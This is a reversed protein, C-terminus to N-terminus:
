SGFYKCLHSKFLFCQSEPILCSSSQTHSWCLQCLLHKVFFKVMSLLPGLCMLALARERLDNHRGEFQRLGHQQSPWRFDAARNGPATCSGATFPLSGRAAPLAKSLYTCSQLLFGGQFLVRGCVDGCKVGLAFHAESKGKGTIAPHVGMEVDM